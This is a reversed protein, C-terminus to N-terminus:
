EDYSSLLLVINALILKTYRHSIEDTCIVEIIRIEIFM